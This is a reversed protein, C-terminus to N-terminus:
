GTDTDELCVRLNLVYSHGFFCLMVDALKACGVQAWYRMKTVSVLPNTGSYYCWAASRSPSRSLTPLENGSSRTRPQSVALQGPFSKVDAIQQDKQLTSKQNNTCIIGGM